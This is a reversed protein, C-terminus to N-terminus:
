QVIGNSLPLIIDILLANSIARLMAYKLLNESGTSPSVVGVVEGRGEWVMRKWGEMGRWKREIGEGGTEAVGRLEEHGRGIGEIDVSPVVIYLPIRKFHLSCHELAALLAILTMPM